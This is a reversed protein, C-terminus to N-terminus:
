PEGAKPPAPAEIAESEGGCLVCDGQLHGKECEIIARAWRKGYYTRAMDIRYTNRGFRRGYDRDCFTYGLVFGAATFALALLVLATM